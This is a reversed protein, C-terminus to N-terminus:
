RGAGGPGARHLRESHRRSLVARAAACLRESSEPVAPRSVPHPRRTGPPILDLREARLMSTNPSRQEVKGGIFFTGQEKLVLPAKAPAAAAAQQASAPAAMVPALFAASVITLSHPHMRGGWSMRQ